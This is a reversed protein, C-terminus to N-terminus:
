QERKCAHKMCFTLFVEFVGQRQQAIYPKCVVPVGHWNHQTEKVKERSLLPKRPDVVHKEKKLDEKQTKM